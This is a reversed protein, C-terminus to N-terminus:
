VAQGIGGCDYESFMGADLFDHSLKEVAIRYQPLNQATEGEFCSPGKRKRYASGRYGRKLLVNMVTEASINKNEKM